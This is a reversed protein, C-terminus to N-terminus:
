SVMLSFLHKLEEESRNKLNETSLTYLTLYKIGQKIALESVRKINKAGETHGFFKLKGQETAWRRNGDMIIALHNIQPM